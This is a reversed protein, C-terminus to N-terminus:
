PPLYKWLCYNQSHTCSTEKVSNVKNGKFLRDVMAKSDHLDLWDMYFVEIIASKKGLM